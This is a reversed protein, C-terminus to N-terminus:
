EVEVVGKAMLKDALGRKLLRLGFRRLRTPYRPSAKPPPKGGVIVTRDSRGKVMEKLAARKAATTERGKKASAPNGPHKKAPLIQVARDHYLIFRFAEVPDGNDFDVLAQQVSRPTLHVYRKHKSPITYRITQLDTHVIDIPTKKNDFAEKLAESIMCYAGDCVKATNIIRDTVDVRIINSEGM